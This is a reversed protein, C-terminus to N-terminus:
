EGRFEPKRKELFATMGEKIDSTSNLVTQAVIEFQAGYDAPVSLSANVAMKGLRLAMPARKKMADALGHAADMLEAAPVVRNVLGIRLATEADHIVGTLVMEKAIGLGVIRPLRMTGGAGPIIGLGTEPLGMKAHDAAIRLDCALAFELGGGLAFGNIAAITPIPVAELRAFLRNNGAALVDRNTRALLTRVDAGAVFVKRGGGTVILIRVGADGEIRDLAAHIESVTEADLANRAEPRDVTLVAVGEAVELRVRDFEM